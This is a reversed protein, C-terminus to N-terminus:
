EYFCQILSALYNYVKHGNYGVTTEKYMKYMYTDTVNTAWPLPMATLMYMKYICYMYSTCYIQCDKQAPQIMNSVCYLYVIMQKVKYVICYHCNRPCNDKYDTRKLYKDRNCICTQLAKEAPFVIIIIKRLCPEQSDKFVQFTM